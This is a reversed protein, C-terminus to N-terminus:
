IKELKTMPLTKFYIRSFHAVLTSSFISKTKCIAYFHLITFTIAHLITSMVQTKLYFFFYVDIEQKSGRQFPTFFPKFYVTGGETSGGGEM